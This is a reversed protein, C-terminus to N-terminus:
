GVGPPEVLPVTLPGIGAPCDGIAPYTSWYTVDVRIVLVSIPQSSRIRVSGRALPDLDPFLGKEHLFQARKAGPPIELEVSDLLSGDVLHFDVELTASEERSPNLLAVGTGGTVERWSPM